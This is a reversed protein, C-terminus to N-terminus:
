PRKAADPESRECEGSRPMPESRESSRQRRELALHRTVSGSGPIVFPATNATAFAVHEVELIYRGARPATIAFSGDRASLVMDVHVSDATLLRVVAGDVPHPEGGAASVVTGRVMQTHAASPIVLAAALLMAVLVLTIRDM